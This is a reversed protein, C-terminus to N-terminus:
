ESLPSHLSPPRCVSPAPFRCAALGGTPRLSRPAEATQGHADTQIRDVGFVVCPPAAIQDCALEVSVVHRRQGAGLLNLRRDEQRLARRAGVDELRNAGGRLREPLAVKEEEAIRPMAARHGADTTLFGVLLVLGPAEVVALQDIVLHEALQRVERAADADADQWGGAVAAGDDPRPHWLGDGASASRLHHRWRNRHAGVRLVLRK